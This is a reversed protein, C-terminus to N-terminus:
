LVCNPFQQALSVNISCKNYTNIRVIFENLKVIFRKRAPAFTNHSVMWLGPGSIEKKLCSTM